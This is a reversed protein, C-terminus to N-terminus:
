LLFDAATDTPRCHHGSQYTIEFKGGGTKSIQSIQSIPSIQDQLTFLVWLIKLVSRSVKVENREAGIIM